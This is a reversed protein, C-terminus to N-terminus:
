LFPIFPASAGSYPGEMPLFSPPFIAPSFAQLKAYLARWQCRIFSFVFPIKKDLPLSFFFSDAPLEQFRPILSALLVTLSGGNEGSVFGLWAAGFPRAPRSFPSFAARCSRL